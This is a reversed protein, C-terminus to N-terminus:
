EVVGPIIYVALVRASWEDDFRHEVVKRSQVYSHILSLGGLPYDGFIGMHQPEDKFRMVAVRGLAPGDARQMHADCFRILSYNSSQRSYAPIGSDDFGTLTKAVGIVIGACDTAIGKLRQQHNWPTGIWERAAAVIAEPTTM